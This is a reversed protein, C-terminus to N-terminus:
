TRPLTNTSTTIPMFGKMVVWPKAPVLISVVTMPATILMTRSGMKMKTKSMPTAPAAMAVTRLWATLATHIRRNRVPRLVMRRSFARLISKCPFIMRGQRASPIELKTM